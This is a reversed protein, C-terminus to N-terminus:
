TAYIYGDRSLTLPQGNADLVQVGEGAIIEGIITLEDFQAAQERPLSVILEYDDGGTILAEIGVDDLYVRAANSLPINAAHIMAGVGSSRCLHQTDLVLGDSCDTVAHAKGSLKQGLAVRPTPNEYAARLNADESLEGKAVKLGLFADGITGSVCLVDGVQAGNRRLAQGHPVEGIMTVSHMVAGDQVVTDGGILSLGYCAQEEALANCFEQLWADDVSQNLLGAVLYYRPAAGMAALDSLNVALLKKAILAPPTNPLYHVNEVLADKTVIMDHTEGAIVAADDDLNLAAPDEALPRLLQAILSSEDMSSMSCRM